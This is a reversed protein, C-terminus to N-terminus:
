LSCRSGVGHGCTTRATTCDNLPSLHNKHAVFYGHLSVPQLSVCGAQCAATCCTQPAASPRVYGGPVQKVRSGLKRPSTFDFPMGVLPTIEGRPISAGDKPTYQDRGTSAGSLAARICQAWPTTSQGHFFRCAPLQRCPLLAWGPRMCTGQWRRDSALVLPLRPASVCPHDARARAGGWLRARGPQLLQLPLCARDAVAFCCWSERNRHQVGPSTVARLQWCAGLDLLALASCLCAPCSAADAAAAAPPM